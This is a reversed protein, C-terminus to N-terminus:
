KIYISSDSAQSRAGSVWGARPSRSHPSILSMRSIRTCESRPLAAFSPAIVSVTSWSAGGGPGLALPACAAAETTASSARLVPGAVIRKSSSAPSSIRMSSVPQAPRGSVAASHRSRRRLGPARPCSRVPVSRM